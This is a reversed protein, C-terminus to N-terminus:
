EDPLYSPFGFISLLITGIVLFALSLIYKIRLNKPVDKWYAFPDNWAKKCPLAYKVFIHSGLLLTFVFGLLNMVYAIIQAANVFISTTSM